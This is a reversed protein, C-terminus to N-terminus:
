ARGHARQDALEDRAFVQLFRQGVALNGFHELFLADFARPARHGFVAFGESDRRRVQAFGQSLLENFASWSKRGQAAPTSPKRASSTCRSVPRAPSSRSVARPPM